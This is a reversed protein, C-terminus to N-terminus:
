RHCASPCPTRPSDGPILLSSGKQKDNAPKSPSLQDLSGGCRADCGGSASFHAAECSQWTGAFVEARVSARQVWRRFCLGRLHLSCTRTLFVPAWCAVHAPASSAPLGAHLAGACQGPLARRPLCPALRCEPPAPTNVHQVVCPAFGLWLGTRSHAGLGRSHQASPM